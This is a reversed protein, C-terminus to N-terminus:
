GILRTRLNMHITKAGQTGDQTARQGKRKQNSCPPVSVAVVGGDAAAAAHVGVPAVM